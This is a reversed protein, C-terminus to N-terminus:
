CLILTNPQNYSNQGTEDRMPRTEIHLNALVSEIPHFDEHLIIMIPLFSTWKRFFVTAFKGHFAVGKLKRTWAPKSVDDKIRNYILNDDEIKYEAIYPAETKAEKVCKRALKKCSKSAYQKSWNQILNQIVLLYYFLFATAIFVLAYYEIHIWLPCWSPTLLIVYVSLGLGFISASLGIIRIIVM